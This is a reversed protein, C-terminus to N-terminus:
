AAFRKKSRIDLADVSYVREECVSPHSSLASMSKLQDSLSKDASNMYGPLSWKGDVCLHRYKRDLIKQRYKRDLIKEVGDQTIGLRASLVKAIARKSTHNNPGLEEIACLVDNESMPRRGKVMNCGDEDTMARLVVSEGNVTDVKESQFYHRQGDEANKQKEILLDLDHLKMEEDQRCEQIALITDFGAGYGSSGRLGNAGSEDSKHAVTLSCVKGGRRQRIQQITNLYVAAVHAKDQDSGILALSLTDVTFLLPMKGIRDGLLAQIEPICSEVYDASAITVDGCIWVDDLSFPEYGHTMEWATARKKRWEM